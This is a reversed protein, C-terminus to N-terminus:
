RRDDPRPAGGLEDGAEVGARADREGRDLLDDRLGEVPARVSRRSHHTEPIVSGERPAQGEDLMTGDGEERGGGCARSTLVGRSAAQNSEDSTREDTAPKTPDDVRHYTTNSEHQGLRDRENKDRRVLSRRQRQMVDGFFRM